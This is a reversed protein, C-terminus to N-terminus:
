HSSSQPLSRLLEAGELVAQTPRPPNKTWKELREYEEMSVVIIDSNVGEKRRRDRISDEVLTAESEGFGLAIMVERYTIPMRGRSIEFYEPCNKHSYNRLQSSTKNGFRRWIDDLIKEEVENIADLSKRAFKKMAVVANGNRAIFESWLSESNTDLKGDIGNLTASCIPGHPLSYFEDFLMPTHHQKLSERESLYILKILKLKEIVGDNPMKSKLAFFAVMQAAKRSEYGVLPPTFEPIKYEETMALDRTM